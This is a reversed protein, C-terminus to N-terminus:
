DKPLFGQSQREWLRKYIGDKRLLQAHTGDEAIRGQDLVILRDMRMVTSLRHAIAIVTRHEMLPYIYTQIVSEIESDLASTAEDLLMIPADKLILRAIAIRQRQGGSLKVGREGVRSQYGENGYSDRLSLIFDHAASQRTANLIDEESADQRGYVLNDRISRNLLTPDQTVMGIQARLSNQTVDSIKHGDITISGSQIDYTRLLLNVLTTKGAGSPGVLGIKQGAPIHLNLRDFITRGSPYVFTVDKFNIEGKVKPIAPANPKDTVTIRRTLLELSNKVTGYNESIISAQMLFWIMQMRIRLLLPFLAVVSGALIDGTSWLYVATLGIVAMFVSNGVDLFITALTVAKNKSYGNELHKNLLRVFGSNEDEPKSFLKTLSINTIIDVCRGLATSYSESLRDSRSSIIPTFIWVIVMTTVAWMFLGLVLLWHITGAIFLTTIFFTCVWWVNTIVNMMLDASTRGFDFVKASLRGAMENHFFEMSQRTLYTMARFRSRQALKPNVILNHFVTELAGFLPMAILIIIIVAILAPHLLSTAPSVNDAAMDDVFLGILLMCLPELVATITNIIFLLSWRWPNLRFIDALAGMVTTPFVAPHGEDPKLEVYKKYFNTNM